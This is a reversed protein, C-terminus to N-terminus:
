VCPDVSLTYTPRPHYTGGLAVGRLHVSHTSHDGFVETRGYKRVLDAGSGGPNFPLNAREVALNGLQM